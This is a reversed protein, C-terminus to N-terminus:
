QKLGRQIMQKRDQVAASIGYEEEVLERRVVNLM